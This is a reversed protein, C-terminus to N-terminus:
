FHSLANVFACRKGRQFHALIRARRGRMAWGNLRYTTRLNIASEDVFVLRPADEAGICFQYATRSDETQEMARKSLQM